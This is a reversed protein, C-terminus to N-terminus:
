YLKRTTFYYSGYSFILWMSPLIYLIANPHTKAFKNALVIFIVVLVTSVASARNSDYRPNYYGISLIFFISILPFVSVLINFSFDKSKKISTERDRWYLFIDNLSKINKVKMNTSHNLLMKEFDVQQISNSIVFSKGDIMKLNLAGDKNKMTAFNASIFTDNKPTLQLLTIDKFQKNNEKNVYIMWEGFQQGYESAKINFQAEQKKSILFKEKLYKAKPMLGLSVILLILTVAITIPLLQQVMRLPNLGFSTIIITEYESSFKSISLVMGIFYAIPLTYFIITPLSYLYLQMLELFNIQIVSTLAAIKVLFIISTIIFLTFFMPFFTQSFTKFLYKELLKM